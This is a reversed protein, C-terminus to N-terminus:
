NIPCTSERRILETDYVKRIKKLKKKCDLLETMIRISDMGINYLPQKITTISPGNYRLPLIRQDDFGIVSVDKPVELGCDMVAKISYCATADDVCFVATPRIENLSILNKMCDYGSEYNRSTHQIYGNFIQLQKKQMAAIYGDMRDVNAKKNMNGCIHAIRKHGLDLLYEVAKEAGRFNDILLNNIDLGVIENEILVFPFNIDVLYRIISEDSLYSGYLIVGDTVGNTLYKVYGRKREVNRGVLSCFVVNYETENAGDEFGKILDHYFPDYLKNVIVGIAETKKMVLTRAANNPVYGLKKISRIIRKYTKPYVNGKNNYVRSITALSVNAHKAVDKITIVM